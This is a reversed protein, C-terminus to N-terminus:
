HSLATYTLEFRIHGKDVRLIIEHMKGDELGSDGLLVNGSDM